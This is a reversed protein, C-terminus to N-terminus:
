LLAVRWIHHIGSVVVKNFSSFTVEGKHIKINSTQKMAHSIILSKVLSLLTHTGNQSWHYFSNSSINQRKSHPLYSFFWLGPLCCVTFFFLINCYLWFRFLISWYRMTCVVPVDTGWEQDQEDQSYWGWQYLGYALCHFYWNKWYPLHFHTIKCSLFTKKVWKWPM